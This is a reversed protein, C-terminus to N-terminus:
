FHTWGRREFQLVRKESDLVEVRAPGLLVEGIVTLPIGSESEIRALEPRASAPVTFVLEYDDGGGVVDGFLRADADLASRAAASLPLASADLQIAVESAQAIHELDGLLGDSVDLCARAVGVLRHGLQLRPQPRHYRDILHARDAAGLGFSKGQLICLGLAADGLTGSVVVSDGPQAGSRPLAKGIPVEGLATLSLVLGKETRTTDGGLLTIGFLKQDEKLGAAFAELWRDDQSTGRALSLLYGFPRAGMAALDSLNVRLLKRAVGAPDDDSLFHIGECLTDLTVVTEHGPSAVFTAADNRLDFTGPRGDTLPAFLRAIMDFEGTM